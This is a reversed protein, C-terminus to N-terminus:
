SSTQDDINDELIDTRAKLIIQYNKAIVEQNELTGFIMNHDLNKFNIIHKTKIRIVPCELLHQQTETFLHCLRCWMDDSSGFNNKVNIMRTRLKFLTQVEETTLNKSLIYSAPKFGSFKLNVTKSHSGRLKELNKAFFRETRSKVVKRFQDESYYTIDVDSLDMDLDKKDQELQYIWDGKSKNLKQATFFKQILESKDVNVLHWWYMMRRIKILNKISIKGFELYLAEKPVSVPVSLLRRLFMEDVSELKQYEQKSIHYWIESSSVMKSVLITDRMTLAIEYFYHGLSIQNLSSFIQEWVRIQKTLLIKTMQEVVAFLTVWICKM